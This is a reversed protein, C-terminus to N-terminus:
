PLNGSAQPWNEAFRSYFDGKKNRRGRGGFFFFWKTWGKKGVRRRSTLYKNFPREFNSGKSGKLKWLVRTWGDAPDITVKSLKEFDYTVRIPTWHFSGIFETYISM